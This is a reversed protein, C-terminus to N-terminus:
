PQFQQFGMSTRPSVEESVVLDERGGRILAFPDESRETRKGWPPEEGKGYGEGRLCAETFSSVFDKRGERHLCGRSRVQEEGRLYAGTLPDKGRLYPGILVDQAGAEEGDM